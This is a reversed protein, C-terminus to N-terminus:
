NQSIETEFLGNGFNKYYSHVDPTCHPQSSYKSDLQFCRLHFKNHFCTAPLLQGVIKM